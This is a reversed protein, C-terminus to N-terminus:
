VSNLNSQPFNWEWIEKFIRLISLGNINGGECCTYHGHWLPRRAQRDFSLSFNALQISPDTNPLLIKPISIGTSETNLIQNNM